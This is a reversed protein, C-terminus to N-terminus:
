NGNACQEEMRWVSFARSLKDHNAFASPNLLDFEGTSSSGNQPLSLVRCLFDIYSSALKLTQIKSLKDSPLTPIMKRLSAFAENLNQTRQRERSNAMQRQSQMEQYSFDDSKRKFKQRSRSRCNNEDDSGIMPTATRRKKRTKRIPGINNFSQNYNDDFETKVHKVVSLNPESNSFGYNNNDTYIINPNGFKNYCDVHASTQQYINGMMPPRVYTTPPYYYQEPIMIPYGQQQQQQQQQYRASLMSVSTTSLPSSASSSSMASFSIPVPITKLQIEDIPKELLSIKRGSDELKPIM